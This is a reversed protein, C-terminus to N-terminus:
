GDFRAEAAAEAERPSAGADMLAAVYRARKADASQAGRELADPESDGSDPTEPEGNALTGEHAKCARTAWGNRGYECGDADCTGFVTAYAGKGGSKARILAKAAAEALTDSDAPTHDHAECTARLDAERLDPLLDAIEGIEIDDAKLAASDGPGDCAQEHRAKAGANGFSRGCGHKCALVEGDAGNDDSM